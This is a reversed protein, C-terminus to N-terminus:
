RRDGIVEFKLRIFRALVFNNICLLMILQRVCKVELLITYVFSVLMDVSKDGL